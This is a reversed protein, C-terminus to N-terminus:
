EGSAGVSQGGSGNMEEPTAPRFDKLVAAVHEASLEFGFAAGPNLVLGLEAGLNQLLVAGQTTVVTPAHDLFDPRIRARDTFAAVLPKGDANTLVLPEVFETEGPVPEPVLLCSATSSRSSRSRAM